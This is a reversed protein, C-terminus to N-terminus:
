NVDRQHSRINFMKKYTYQSNTSKNFVTLQKMPGSVSQTTQKPKPQQKKKKKPNNEKEKFIRSTLGM